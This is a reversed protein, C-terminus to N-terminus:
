VDEVEVDFLDRLGDGILNFSLVTFSIAVGPFTSIWWFNTVYDRGQAIMAGWSPTPPTVGLGLFALAAGVLIVFGADLTIKVTLPALINPLIESYIIRIWGTGISESAEVFEEEKVSLVEGQVLRTYWPWWAVSIAIMANWLSAGLAATVALALLIPPIALFVDTVRMIVVNVWGGFYGAVLGLPVGIGVALTLVLAAMLLSIRAGFIIRSFIDRGLTDTGMPHDLSPPQSQQEFNIDGTVDGPYPALYPAFIALVIVTTMMMIGVVSLLNSSLRNVARRLRDFRERRAVEDGILSHAGSM